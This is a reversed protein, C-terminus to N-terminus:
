GLLLVQSALPFTAPHAYSGLQSARRKSARPRDAVALPRLFAGVRVRRVGGVVQVLVGGRLVRVLAERVVVVTVQGGIAIKRVGPVGLIPQAADLAAVRVRRGVAVRLDLEHVIIETAPHLLFHGRVVSCRPAHAVTPPEDPGVPQRDQLQVGAVRVVHRDEALVGPAEVQSAV